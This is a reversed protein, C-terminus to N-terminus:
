PNAYNLQHKHKTTDNTPQTSQKEIRKRKVCLYHSLQAIVTSLFCKTNSDARYKGFQQSESQQALFELIM